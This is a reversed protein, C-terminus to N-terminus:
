RKCDMGQFDFGWKVLGEGATSEWVLLKKKLGIRNGNIEGFGNKSMGDKGKLWNEWMKGRSEDKIM